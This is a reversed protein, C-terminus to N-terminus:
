GVCGVCLPFEWMLAGSVKCFYEGNHEDCVREGYVRIRLMAEWHTSGTKTSSTGLVNCFLKLVTRGLAKNHYNDCSFKKKELTTRHKFM